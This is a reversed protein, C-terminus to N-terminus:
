KIGLGHGLLWGGITTAIAGFLAAIASLSLASRFARQKQVFERHETIWSQNDRFQKLSTDNEIDVGLRLLAERIETRTEQRGPIPL